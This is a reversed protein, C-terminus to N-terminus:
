AAVPPHSHLVRKGGRATATTTGDPHLVLTWGQRHVAVLHHYRCLLICNELSTEGGESRPVLHHVHCRVPRRHCGPFRCHQDRRIIARRLYPPITETAKGTDLPLSVSGAPGGLQSARLWGALGGPGSLLRVADAISIQRAARGARAATGEYLDPFRRATIDLAADEDVTGTVFPVIVADCDAGAPAGGGNAAIWAATAQDAEPLGMLQSLTMHLQIQTPQGARDPLGGAVAAACLEELADHDRQDDTRLDEPGAPANLSDLAARLAAAAAPTLNGELRAHGQFHRTLRVSRGSFGDNVPDTDPPAARRWMEEALAALDALEAGGAAAGLLIEDATARDAGGFRDTLECIVRAFSPSIQGAALASAVLPHNELRRMWATAAGAATGPVRTQWRLWSRATPQGDDASAGANNFASLIKSAAALHVSECTALGRLCEALEAAPLEAAPLSALFGLGARVAALADATNAPAGATSGSATYGSPNATGAAASTQEGTVYM